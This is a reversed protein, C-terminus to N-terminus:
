TVRELEPPMPRTWSRLREAAIAVHRATVIGVICGNLDIRGAGDVIQSWYRPGHTFDGIGISIERNTLEAAARKVDRHIGLKLPRKPLGAFAAPFKEALITRVRRAIRQKESRTLAATM